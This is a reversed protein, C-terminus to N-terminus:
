SVERHFSFEGQMKLLPKWVPQNLFASSSSKFHGLGPIHTSRHTFVKGPDTVVFLKLTIELDGTDMPVKEESVM